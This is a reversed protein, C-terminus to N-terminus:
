AIASIGGGGSLCTGAARRGSLAELGTSVEVVNMSKRASFTWSHIIDYGSQLKLLKRKILGGSNVYKGTRAM